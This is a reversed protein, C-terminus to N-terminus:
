QDHECPQDTLTSPRACRQATLGLAPDPCPRFVLADSDDVAICTKTTGNILIFGYPSALTERTTKAIAHVAFNLLQARKRTGPVLGHFWEHRQRPTLRHVFSCGQRLCQRLRSCILGGRLVDHARDDTLRIIAGMAAPYAGLVRQYPWKRASSLRGTAAQAVYPISGLPAILEAWAQGM